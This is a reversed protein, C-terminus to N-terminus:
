NESLLKRIFQINMPKIEICDDPCGSVNCVSDSEHGYDNILTLSGINMKMKTFLERNEEFFERDDAKTGNNADGSSEWKVKM